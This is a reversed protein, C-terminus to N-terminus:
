NQVEEESDRELSAFFCVAKGRDDDMILELRCGPRVTEVDILRLSAQLSASRESLDDPLYEDLLNASDYFFKRDFVVDADELYIALPYTNSEMLDQFFHTGFSPEPASGIDAGTLEILARANFIDSYGVKVGLELNSTGWRGPGICIYVEEELAKNLKGIARGVLLRDAETPLSFYGEAPVYVVYRIGPVHGRPVMRKTSFVIDAQDLGPPLQVHSDRIQSQPRCQLISIRADPSTTRAGTIELAFEMDVPSQYYKALTKLLRSMRDPFPTRRLLDDFTVVLRDSGGGLLNSRIPSLFGDKYVQAVYRLIPYRGNLVEAVPLTKFENAALDIVDVAQQSYRMIGQSSTEPRLTPHSLAVLRPYENAVTDVARTGLGWVLRLFGDDRKIRTSWRYLNRSFAVGAAHPLYYDEFREGEVVQILIAMREDYDQLGKSRRYLLADPNLTSAYVSAISRTLFQLNEEPTGQNPCFFSEYKGAFSTGFNDELQSSSRVIIPRPGLRELMEALRDLIDRPFTGALYQEWILPYEARIEEETKYKQRNWQMLGNRTMYTYMLDAGLFYSTPVNLCDRVDEDGKAALIAEALLMGAAKGGIKGYGIKHKLIAELADISFWDKAIRVYELQDSIMARILVVKIEELIAQNKEQEVPPMQLIARAQDFLMYKPSLEPSFSLSVDEGHAHKALSNVVIQEFLEYPLNTAFYFDTLHERVRHVRTDWVTAPEEGYPDALGERQQSRIAQERVIEELDNPAIIGMKDLEARMEERIRDALIPYEALALTIRLIPDTRPSPFTM